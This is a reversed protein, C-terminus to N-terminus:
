AVGPPHTTPTPSLRKPQRGWLGTGLSSTGQGTAEDSACVRRGIQESLKMVSDKPYRVSLLFFNEELALHATVLFRSLRLRVSSRSARREFQARLGSEKEREEEVIQSGTLPAWPAVISLKYPELDGQWGAVRPIICTEVVLLLLITRTCTFSTSSRCNNFVQDIHFISKLVAHAM